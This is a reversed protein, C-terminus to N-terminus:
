PMTFTHRITFPGKSPPFRWGSIEHILENVLMKDIEHPGGVQINGLSGNRQLSFSVTIEKPLSRPYSRFHEDIFLPQYYRELLSDVSAPCSSVIKGVKYAQLLEDKFVECLNTLELCGPITMANRSTTKTGSDRIGKISATLEIESEMPNQANRKFYHNESTGGTGVLDVLGKPFFSALDGKYATYKKRNIVLSDCSKAINWLDIFNWGGFCTDNARIFTQHITYADNLTDNKLVGYPVVYVSRVQILRVPLPADPGPMAVDWEVVEWIIGNSKIELRDSRELPVGGASVKSTYMWLGAHAELFHKKEEPTFRKTNRYYLDLKQPNRAIFRPMNVALYYIIACCMIAFLTLVIAVARGSRDPKNKYITEM